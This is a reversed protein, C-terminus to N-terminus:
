EQPLLQTISKGGGGVEKLVCEDLAFSWFRNQNIEDIPSFVGHPLQVIKLIAFHLLDQKLFSMVPRCSLCLIFLLDTEHGASPFPRYLRKNQSFSNVDIM